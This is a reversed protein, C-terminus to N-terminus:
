PEEGLKRFPVFYEANAPIDEYRTNKLLEGLRAMANGKCYTRWAIPLVPTRLDPLLSVIRTSNLVSEPACGATTLLPTEYIIWGAYKKKFFMERFVADNGYNDSVIDEPALDPYIELIGAILDHMSRINVAEPSVPHVPEGLPGAFAIKRIGAQKLDQAARRGVDRYDVSVIPCTHVFSEGLAIVAVGKGRLEQVIEAFLDSIGYLVVLEPLTQCCEVLADMRSGFTVSVKYGLESQLLSVLTKFSITSDLLGLSAVVVAHKETKRLLRSQIRNSDWGFDQVFHLIKRRIEPRVCDKGNLVRSVTAVSVGCFDAIKQITLKKRM